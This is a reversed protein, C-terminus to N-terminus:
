SNCWKVGFSIVIGWFILGLIVSGTSSSDKESTGEQIDSAPSSNAQRPVGSKKIKSQLHKKTSADLMSIDAGRKAIDSVFDEVELDPNLKEANECVGIIRCIRDAHEFQASKLSIFDMTHELSMQFYARAVEYQVLGLELSLLEREPGEELKSLAMQHAKMMEDFRDSVLNSQWGASTGLGSWADKSNSDIELINRFHEYAEAYNGAKLCTAALEQLNKVRKSDTNKSREIVVTSGCYSCKANDLGEPLQLAGSCQPCTASVFM